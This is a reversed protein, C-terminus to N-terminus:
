GEARRTRGASPAERVTGGSEGPVHTGLDDGLVTPVLRRRFGGLVRAPAPAGAKAAVATGRYAMM